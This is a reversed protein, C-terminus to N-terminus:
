SGVVDAVETAIVEIQTQDVLRLDSGLTSNYIGTVTLYLMRALYGDAPLDPGTLVIEVTAAPTAAEDEHSNVIAGGEDVLTWTVASPVVPDGNEDTFPVTVVFTSGETARPTLVVGM